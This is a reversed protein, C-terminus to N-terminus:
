VLTSYTLTVILRQEAGSPDQSPAVDVALTAAAPHTLAGGMTPDARLATQWADFYGFARAEVAPLDVDGTTCVLESRVTGVELAVDGFQDAAPEFTGAYDEGVVFGVTAYDVPADGTVPPGSYVVVEGWGPLTPLWDTLRAKVQPWATM